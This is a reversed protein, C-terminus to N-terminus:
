RASYLITNYQITSYRVTHIAKLRILLESLKVAASVEAAAAPRGFDQVQRCPHGETQHSTLLESLKVAASVEAAAAPRRSDPVQCCPHGETQHAARDRSEELCLHVAGCGAPILFVELFIYLLTYISYRYQIVFHIYM